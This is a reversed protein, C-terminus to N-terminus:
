TAKEEMGDGLNFDFDAEGVIIRDELRATKLPDRDLETTDVGLDGEDALLSGVTLRPGPRGGEEEAHFFLVEVCGPAVGV